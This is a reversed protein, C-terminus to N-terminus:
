RNLFPNIFGIIIMNAIHAIKVKIANLLFIMIYLLQYFCGIYGIFANKIYRWDSMELDISLEMM